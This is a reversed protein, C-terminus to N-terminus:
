RNRKEGQGDWHAILAREEETMGTSNGPPMTGSGVVAKIMAASAQIEAATDFAIGNPATVFARDTPSRSHCSSCRLDVIGRVIPFAVAEEPEAPAHPSISVTVIALVSAALLGGTSAWRWSAPERRDFMIMTHRAAIGIVILLTLLLWNLHHGYISPTHNAIMTMIVPLTLYTNHTARRKAWAARRADRERGARTAAVAEEQAPIIRTWVNAVMNTGMVAGVHIFAARGNFLRCLLVIVAFLLAFSVVNAMQPNTDSFRSTWIRDYLFWSVPLLGVALVIAAKPGIASSAPDVLNVGWGWYYLLILLFFGTFWTVAAEVRFWHLPYPVKGPSIHRKEVIYFGGGHGMWAEGLVNERVPKPLKLKSDLWMFYLSSGVWGLIAVIHIWMLAIVLWELTIQAAM